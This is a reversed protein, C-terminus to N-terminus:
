FFWPELGCVVVGFWGLAIRVVAVGALVNFGIAFFRGSLSEFQCVTGTSRGPHLRFLLKLFKGLCLRCRSIYLRRSLDSGDGHNHFIPTIGIIAMVIM